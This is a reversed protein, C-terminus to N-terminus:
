ALQQNRLKKLVVQWYEKYKLLNEMLMGWHDYHGDFYSISSQVLTDTVM